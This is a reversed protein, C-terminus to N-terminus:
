INQKLWQELQDVKLHRLLVRKDRDLLFITPLTRLYYLQHEKIKQESEYGVMAWAPCKDTMSLPNGTESSMNICLVKAKQESVLTSFLDSAKIFDLTEICTECEPEYFILVILPSEIDRLSTKRGDTLKVTFDTAIDGVRNKRYGALREALRISDAHTIVSSDLAQEIFLAYLDENYAPSNSHDLYMEALDVFNAYFDPTSKSLATAVSHSFAGKDAIAGIAFYDVIFQEMSSMGDFMQVTLSDYPLWVHKVVYSAREKPESVSDPPTPFTPPLLREATDQKKQSPMCALIAPFLVCGLLLYHLLRKM